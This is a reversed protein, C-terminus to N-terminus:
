RRPEGPELGRFGCNRDVLIEFDIRRNVPDIKLVHLKSYFVYSATLSIGCDSPRSHIVVVSGVDVVVASDLEYKGGPAILISDFAVSSVQIGSLRGLHLAGTPLLVPRNLTDIDFAFDFAVGRDTRVPGRLQIAYASPTAIPTDRLAYLSVTDVANLFAARGM